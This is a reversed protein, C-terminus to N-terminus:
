TDYKRCKNKISKCLGQTCPIVRAWTRTLETHNNAATKPKRQTYNKGQIRNITGIPHKYRLLVELPHQETRLLESTSCGAKDKYTLQNIVISKAVIHHYYDWQLCPLAHMPKRYVGVSLTKNLEPMIITELFECCSFKHLVNGAYRILSGQNALSLKDDSTLKKRSKLCKWLKHGGICTVLCFLFGAGSDRNSLTAIHNQNM